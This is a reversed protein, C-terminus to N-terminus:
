FHTFGNGDLPMTGGDEYLLHIGLEPEQLTGIITFPKEGLEKIDDLPITFLLEYDDGGLLAYTNPDEGFREAVQRTEIEIPLHVTEIL